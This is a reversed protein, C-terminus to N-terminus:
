THLTGKGSRLRKQCTKEAEEPTTSRMFCFQWSRTGIEKGEYFAVSTIQSVEPPADGHLAALLNYDVPFALIPSPRFPMTQEYGDLPGGVFRFEHNSERKKWFM